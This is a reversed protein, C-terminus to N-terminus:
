FSANIQPNVSPTNKLNEPMNLPQNPHMIEPPTVENIENNIYATIKDKSDEMVVQNVVAQEPTRCGGLMLFTCLSAGVLLANVIWFRLNERGESQQLKISDV